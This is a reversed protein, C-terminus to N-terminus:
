AEQALPGETIEGFPLQFKLSSAAAPGIRVPHYRVNLFGAMGVEVSYLGEPVASACAKGSRDTRESFIKGTVLNVATLSADPLPLNAPDTVHVCLSAAALPRGLGVLLIAAAFSAISRAIM